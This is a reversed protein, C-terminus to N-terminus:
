EKEGTPEPGALAERAIKTDNVLCEALLRKATGMWHKPNSHEPRDLSAISVLARKLRNNEEILFSIYMDSVKIDSGNRNKHKNEIEVLRM